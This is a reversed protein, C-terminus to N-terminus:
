CSKAVSLNKNRKHKCLKPCTCLCTHNRLVVRKTVDTLYCSCNMLTIRFFVAPKVCHSVKSVESSFLLESRMLLLGRMMLVKKKLFPIVLLCDFCVSFSGNYKSARQETSTIARETHPSVRHPPHLLQNSTRPMKPLNSANPRMTRSIASSWWLWLWPWVWVGWWSISCVLWTVSVWRAPRIRCPPSVTLVSTTYKSAFWVIIYYNVFYVM